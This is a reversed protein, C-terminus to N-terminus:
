GLPLLRFGQHIGDCPSVRLRNDSGFPPPLTLCGGGGANVIMVVGNIGTPRLGWAELPGGTCPRQVVLSNIPGFPDLMLCGRTERNVFTSGVEGEKRPTHEWAQVLTNQWRLMRVYPDTTSSPAATAVTLRDADAIAVVEVQAGTARPQAQAPVAALALGLLIAVLSTVYKFSRSM